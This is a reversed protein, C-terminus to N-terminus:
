RRKMGTGNDKVILFVKEGDKGAIIELHGGKPMADAANLVLNLIM